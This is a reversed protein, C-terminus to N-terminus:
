PLQARVRAIRADAALADALVRHALMSHHGSDDYYVDTPPPPHLGRRHRALAAVTDIYELGRADFTALLAGLRGHRGRSLYEDLDARTGFLLVILEFRQERAFTRADDLIAGLLRLCAEDRLLRGAYDLRPARESARTWAARLLAPTYPFRLSSCFRERDYGGPLPRRRAAGGRLGSRARPAVARRAHARPETAPAAAGGELVFRPKTPEFVEQGDALTCAQCFQVDLATRYVNVLRAVSESFLGFLVLPAPQRPQERRLKLFAQDPGYGLVGYNAVDARLRAALHAPWTEEEPGFCATFSDGYAAALTRGYTAPAPRARGFPPVDPRDWGLEPDFREAFFADFFPEGLRPGTARCRSDSTACKVPRSARPM